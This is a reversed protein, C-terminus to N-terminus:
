IVGDMDTRLVTAQRLLARLVVVLLVLVSGVLVLGVLAIPVGPDRLEPTFYIVAILYGAAGTLAVWGVVFAWMIGDVWPLSAPSFIHDRRVMTLLKWTCLLVAQLVVLELEALSFLTWALHAREGQTAMGGLFQGPVSMVQLVLTFASLVALCMKLLTVPLAPSRM